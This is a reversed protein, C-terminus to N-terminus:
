KSINRQVNRICKLTLKDYRIIFSGRNGIEDSKEMYYYYVQVLEHTKYMVPKLLM